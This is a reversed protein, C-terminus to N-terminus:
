TCGSRIDVEDLDVRQDDGAIDIQLTVHAFGDLRRQVIGVGDHSMAAGGAERELRDRARTGLQGHHQQRRHHGQPHRQRHADDRAIRSRGNTARVNVAYAREFSFRNRASRLYTRRWSPKKM